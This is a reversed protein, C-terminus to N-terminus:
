FPVDGEPIPAIVKQDPKLEDAMRQKKLSAKTPKFDRPLIKQAVWTGAELAKRWGPRPPWRVGWLALQARTWSGAPTMAAEIEERSVHVTKAKAAQPPKCLVSQVNLGAAPSRELWKDGWRELSQQGRSPELPKLSRAKDKTWDIRSM